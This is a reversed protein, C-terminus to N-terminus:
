REFTVCWALCAATDAGRLCRCLMFKARAKSRQVVLRNERLFRNRKLTSPSPRGPQEVNRLFCPLVTILLIDLTRERCCAIQSAPTGESACNKTQRIRNVICLCVRNLPIRRHWLFTM